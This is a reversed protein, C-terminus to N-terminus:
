TVTSQPRGAVRSLSSWTALVVGVVIATATTNATPSTFSREGYIIVVVPIVSVLARLAGVVIGPTRPSGERASGGGDPM